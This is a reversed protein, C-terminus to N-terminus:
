ENADLSRMMPPICSFREIEKAERDEFGFFEGSVRNGAAEVARGSRQPFEVPKQAVEAVVGFQESPILDVVLVQDAEATDDLDAVGDHVASGQEIEITERRSTSHSRTELADGALRATHSADLHGVAVGLDALVEGARAAIAM